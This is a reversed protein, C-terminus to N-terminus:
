DGDCEVNRLELNHTRVYEIADPWNSLSGLDKGGKPGPSETSAYYFARKTATKEVFYIFWTM